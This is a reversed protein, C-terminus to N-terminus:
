SFLLITKSHIFANEWSPYFKYQILLALTQPHVCCIIHTKRESLFPVVSFGENDTPGVVQGNKILKKNFKEGLNSVVEGSQAWADLWDCIKTAEGEKKGKGKGKIKCFRLRKERESSSLM